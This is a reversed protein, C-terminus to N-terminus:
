EKNGTIETSFLRVPPRFVFELKMVLFNRTIKYNNLGSSLQFDGGELLRIFAFKFNDGDVHHRTTLSTYSWENKVEGSFLYSHNVDPELRKVYPIHYM